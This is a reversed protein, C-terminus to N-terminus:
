LSLSVSQHNKVDYTLFHNGKCGFLPDALVKNMEKDILFSVTGRAYGVFNGEVQVVCLLTAVGNYIVRMGYWNHNDLVFCRVNWDVLLNKILYTPIVNFHVDSPKNNAVSHLM